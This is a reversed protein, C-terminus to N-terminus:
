MRSVWQWDSDITDRKRVFRRTDAAGSGPQIMQIFVRRVCRRDSESLQAFWEEAKHILANNVGGVQEYSVHSVVGLQQRPWLMTLAFELLPLRAADGAVERIMRRVLGEEYTVGFRSAPLEIAETLEPDTMPGLRVVARDPLSEALPSHARATDYFDSRISILLQCRASPHQPYLQTVRLLISVFQARERSTTCATYLQEFQDVVLLIR